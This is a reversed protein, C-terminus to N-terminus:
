TGDPFQQALALKGPVRYVPADRGLVASPDLMQQALADREAPDATGDAHTERPQQVKQHFAIRGTGLVEMDLEWGLWCRHEQGAQLRFGILHPAEHLLLRVLWPDPNRHIGGGTLDNRKMHSIATAVTALLEPGMNRQGVTLLRREMGILIGDIFLHYRCSLVPCDRLVGPFGIMNLAEIVRQPLAHGTEHALSEREGLRQRM